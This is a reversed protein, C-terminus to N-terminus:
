RAASAPLGANATRDRPVVGLRGSLAQDCAIRFTRRPSGTGRLGVHGVVPPVQTHNCRRQLLRSLGATLSFYARCSSLRLCDGPVLSTTLSLCNGAPLSLGPPVTGPNFIATEKQQRIDFISRPKRRHVPQVIRATGQNGSQRLPRPYFRNCAALISLGCVVTM